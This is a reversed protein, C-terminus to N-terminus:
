LVTTRQFRQCLRVAVWGLAAALAAGHFAATPGWTQWLWGAVLGGSSGGLGYGIATFLAQARGQQRPEFWNQLLAMCASHHVGFTVAHMLQTVVIGVISGEVAGVLVFRVAATALSFALLPMTGFRDFLRRQVRFLVIEAIVGLTWIAGIASKSFGLQDLWLSYFSYLAAHAFLMLFSSAFFAAIRPQRLMPLVAASAREAPPTDHMRVRWTVLVLLLVLALMVAPLRQTGWLDLAPGCLAVSLIFGVSGWLRLRGYRGADGQVVSLALTEALPGQASTSFQWAIVVLVLVGMRAGALEFGLVAVLAMLATVRLLRQRRGTHDAIWGWFPPAVIRVVQPIALLVAIQSIALGVSAYYLSLYPASAGVLM